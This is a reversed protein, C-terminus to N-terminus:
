KFRKLIKPIESTNAAFATPKARKLADPHNFGWGASIHAIGVKKAADIDRVEDGIYVVQRAPIHEEKMVKRLASAKSRLGIDGYIKVFYQDLKNAKLFKNINETSNTSLIFMQYNQHHLKELVKPLGAFPKISSIKAALARRGKILFRPIQWRRIKLYKLIEKLPQSRLYDIQAASLRQSRPAIEEFVGVLTAFSNAITGDFDFIITKV